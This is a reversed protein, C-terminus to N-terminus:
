GGAGVLTVLATVAYPSAQSATAEYSRGGEQAPAGTDGVAQSVASRGENSGGADLRETLADDVTWTSPRARRQDIRDAVLLVHWGEETPIAAVPHTADRGTEVVHAVQDASAVSRYATATGSMQPFQGYFTLGPPPAAPVEYLYLRSGLSTGDNVEPGLPLVTSPASIAGGSGRNEVVHVVVFDGERAGAPV